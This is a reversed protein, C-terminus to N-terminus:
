TPNEGLGSDKVAGAGVPRPGHHKKCSRTPPGFSRNGVLRPQCSLRGTALPPARWGHRLCCAISAIRVVTATV